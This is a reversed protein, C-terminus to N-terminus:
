DYGSLIAAKVQNALIPVILLIDVQSMKGPTGKRPDRGKTNDRGPLCSSLQEAECIAAAKPGKGPIL